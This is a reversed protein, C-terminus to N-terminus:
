LEVKQFRWDASWRVLEENYAEFFTLAGTLGALGKAEGIATKCVFDIVFDTWEQGRRECVLRAREEGGTFRLMVLLPRHEALLPYLRALWDRLLAEPANMQWLVRLHSQYPYSELISPQNRQKADHLFFEWKRLLLNSLEGPDMGRVEGFDAGMTGVPVPHLPHDADM